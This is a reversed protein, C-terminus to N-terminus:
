GSPGTPPGLGDSLDRDEASTGQPGIREVSVQAEIGFPASVTRTSGPALVLWALTMETLLVALRGPRRHRVTWARKQTTQDDNGRSVVKKPALLLRNLGRPGSRASLYNRGAAWCTLRLSLTVALTAGSSGLRDEASTGQPGIREVSVQAEIGFPASVTRTSGPALV